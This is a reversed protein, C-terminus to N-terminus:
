ASDSDIAERGSSHHIRQIWGAEVRIRPDAFRYSLDAILNALVFLVAIVLVGGRVIPYYRDQLSLLHFEV